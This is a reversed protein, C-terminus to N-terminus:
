NRVHEGCSKRKEVNKNQCVTKCQEFSVIIKIFFSNNKESFKQFAECCRLQYVPFLQTSCVLTLKLKSGGGTGGCMHEIGLQLAPSFSPCIEFVPHHFM